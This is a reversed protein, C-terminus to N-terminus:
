IFTSHSIFSDPMSNPGFICEKYYSMQIKGYLIYYVIYINMKM